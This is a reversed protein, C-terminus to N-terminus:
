APPWKPQLEDWLQKRLMWGLGPFFDSRHLLEPKSPDILGVKGNDNWASVCRFGYCKLSVLLFPLNEIFNFTFILYWLTPDNKLLTYTGMFYEYFDSSVDLDDLIFIQKKLVSM